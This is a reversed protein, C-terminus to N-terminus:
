NNRNIKFINEIRNLNIDESSRIKIHIERSFKKDSLSFDIYDIIYHLIREPTSSLHTFGAGILPMHIPRKDKISELHNFLGSLVKSLDKQELDPENRENYETSVVLVFHNKDDPVTVDVCTGLPYKINRVNERNNDVEGNADKLGKTIQENLDKVKEDKFYKMIFQGPVTRTDFHNYGINTDFYNNIPVVIIGDSKWLSGEAITLNLHEKIKVVIKTKRKVQFFAYVFCVVLITLIFFWTLCPHNTWEIKFFFSIMTLVSACAGIAVILHDFFSKM